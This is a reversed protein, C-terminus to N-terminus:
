ALYADRGDGEASMVAPAHKIDGAGPGSGGSEIIRIDIAKRM